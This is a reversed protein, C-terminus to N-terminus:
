WKRPATKGKEPKGNVAQNITEQRAALAAQTAPTQAIVAVPEAEVPKQMQADIIRQEDPRPPQTQMQAILDPHKMMADQTSKPWGRMFTPVNSIQQPDTIQRAITSPNQYSTEVERLHQLVFERTKPPLKHELLLDLCFRLETM